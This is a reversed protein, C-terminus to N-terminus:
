DRFAEAVAAEATLERGAARRQDAGPVVLLPDLWRRRRADDAPPLRYGLADRLADAAGALRLARDADGRAAMVSAVGDLAFGMESRFGGEGQMRLAARLKDIAEAEVGEALAVEGLYTLSAAVFRAEDLERFLALGRELLTRARRYDGLDRAVFGLNNTAHAVGGQNGIAEHLVLSEQLYPEATEYEARARAFNGLRQLCSAIGSTEGLRRCIALSEELYAVAAAGDGRVHALYGLENLPHVIAAGDGVRRFHDLARECLARDLALDGRSSANMALGMLADAVLRPDDLEEGIALAEGRLAEAAALDRQWALNGAAILCRARAQTRPSSDPHALLREFLAAGEHRHHGAIWFLDIAGAAALARGLAGTREAWVFAARINDVERELRPFWEVQEAGALDAREALSLYFDAHRAAIEDAEGAEELRERAYYRLMELMRFRGESPGHEAVVFSKDVLGILLDLTSKAACVAEAADLTFGGTFRALRRFLAREDDGLLDHSWDILARLTRHRPLATRSGSTLVDFRRGSRSGLTVDLREAIERPSLMRVQAAALEIALPIGDLQRCIRTVAPGNAGTLDFGPQAARARDLFLRVAETRLLEDAPAADDRPLSLSPIRWITEGDIGLPERSTALVQLSQSARLLIDVLTACTSLLHECNDLVLLARRERLFATLRQTSSVEPRDDLGLAAAVRTPVLGPDALDDLPVAWVGDPYTDAVRRAVEYALRTKGCGGPGAVTVLPGALLLGAIETVERERGVFSTLARPLNVPAPVARAPVVGDTADPPADAPLQEGLVSAVADIERDHRRYFEARSIALREAVEDVNLAEVYRLQMLAGPQYSGTRPPRHTAQLAELAEVLLQRLARGRAESGAGAAALRLALPHSQLRPTDHLSALADRVQRTFSANQRAEIL